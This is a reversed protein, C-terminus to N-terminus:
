VTKCDNALPKQTRGDLLVAKWPLDIWVLGSRSDEYRPLGSYSLDRELQYRRGKWGIDLMNASRADRRVDIRQGFACHYDGSALEFSLQMRNDAQTAPAAFALAPCATLAILVTLYNRM